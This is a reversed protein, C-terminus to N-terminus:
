RSLQMLRPRTSLNFAYYPAIM